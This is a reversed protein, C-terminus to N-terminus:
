KNRKIIKNITPRSCGYEEALKYSSIGSLNKTTIEKEIESSFLKHANASKAVRDPPYVMGTRSKSMKDCTEKPLSRGKLAASIKKKQTESLTIGKNPSPMGTKAKSMKDKAAQSHKLGSVGDGGDSLNYGFENGFKFVNTKYFQIWYKEAAFAEAETAFEQMPLFEIADGYKVIAKHILSFCSSYIKPGGKAVRLHEAYRNKGSSSKGIYIKGNVTNLLQYIFFSM